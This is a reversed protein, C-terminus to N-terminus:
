SSITLKARWRERNGGKTPPYRKKFWETFAKKAETENYSKWDFCGIRIPISTATRFRGRRLFNRGQKRRNQMVLRLRSM